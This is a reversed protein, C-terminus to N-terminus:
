GGRGKALRELLADLTAYLQATLEPGLEREMAAYRAQVHPAMKAAIRKSRTTLSVLLRRQDGAMRERRVLDLEEMRALVGTLSPSVIQCRECLQRPELPGDQLLARIVRWQQETLGHENLLPRFEAMVSERAQLLLLALNRHQLSSM